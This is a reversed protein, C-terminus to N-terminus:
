ASASPCVGAPKKARSVGKDVGLFCRAHFILPLPVHAIDKRTSSVGLVGALVACLYQESHVLFM